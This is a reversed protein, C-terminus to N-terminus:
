IVNKEALGEIISKASRLAADLLGPDRGGAQAMDPRGGGSGGAAAAIEKAIAGAHAGRSVLDKSVTVIFSTKDDIVAGLAVIGGGLRDRLSDSLSLFNEKDRAEVRAIVVPIGGIDIAQDALSGAQLSAIRGETKELAKELTRNTEIVNHLRQEIANVPSKLAGAVRSLVAEKENLLDLVDTGTIAEIRRVGASVASESVIKIVGIHATNKVHTGGCLEMSYDGISVVRAIEDYKEGFLAIAGLDRAERPSMLRTSVPYASAIAQNARSEIMGLQADTVAEPHTFDFRLRSPEVMSGAQSVHDGLIERLAKHLLHTGTHNSMVRRRRAPDVRLTLQEDVRIQGRVRGQHVIRGDPLKHVAEIEAAGDKGSILGHDAVQGGSEAYFVTEPFILSVDEGENAVNVLEDERIMASATATTELAEYGKFETPAGQCLRNVLLALEPAGAEKRALKSRSRQLEMAEDFGAKDIGLGEEEAIDACLDYPFGFSDYLKFVRAGDLIKLGESKTKDIIERAMRIGADLTEQFREEELRIAKEIMDRNKILDPYAGGMEGVVADTLKYMFPKDAGLVRGFRIARRMIRRLVYGRGENGPLVGDSILFVCSRIHDAIVRVPFGRADDIAQYYPKGTVQTVARIINKMIDTDYNSAVEQVVSTVRELGMGTDISPKPLPTMNGDADRNYQMFVLNWIELFRDCDCTGIGCDPGCSHQEGRDVMIESCPGCPGTDGMEWFNDKAGLRIIRENPISTHTLWLRQAEDDDTYITAYLKDKPLGLEVTIFEWAFKIADEKFYDGFSFNGLMEFFTFHRATRGVTDLDNHKGGARVCKQATVARTYARKELGLFLSKFQNMGANAFLLTPDDYPVLSSSDVRAHGHSEFFSLFKERIENGSLYRM